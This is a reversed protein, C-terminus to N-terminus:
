ISEMAPIDFPILKTPIECSPMNPSGWVWIEQPTKGERQLYNVSTMVREEAWTEISAPESWQRLLALEKGWAALSGTFGGDQHACLSLLLGPREQETALHNYLWLWRPILAHIPRGLRAALAVWADRLELPVGALLWASGIATAQVSQPKDLLLTLMYKWRFFQERAESNGPVEVIDRLIVAPTWLDDVIWKTPGQPMATLAQAIEDESPFGTLFKSHGNTKLLHPELWVTHAQRAALFRFGM